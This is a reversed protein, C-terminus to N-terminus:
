KEGGEAPQSFQKVLGGPYDLTRRTGVRQLDSIPPLWKELELKILELRERRREYQEEQWTDRCNTNALYRQNESVIERIEKTLIHVRGSLEM